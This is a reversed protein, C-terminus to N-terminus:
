VNKPIANRTRSRKRVHTREENNEKKMKKTRRSSNLTTATQVEEKPQTRFKEGGESGKRGTHNKIRSTGHKQRPEGTKPPQRCLPQCEVTTNTDVTVEEGCEL